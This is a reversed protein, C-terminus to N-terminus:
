IIPFHDSGHLDEEVRWTFDMFLSPSCMTLDISTFSGTAPHLYTPTDDNFLCINSRTMFTEMVKGKADSKNGGWLYNHSNFDGVIMFPKPLQSELHTLDRLHLATSPPIYLNCFTITTHLTVKVVIAQLPSTM